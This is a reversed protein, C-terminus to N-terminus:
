RSNELFENYNTKEEDFFHHNFMNYQCFEHTTNFNYHRIDIDLLFSAVNKIRLNAKAYEHIRPTGVCIINKINNETLINIITNVSENSFLYQAEKQNDEIPKLFKSPNLIQEFNLDNITDHDVHSKDISSNFFISCSHCYSRDCQQTLKMQLVIM